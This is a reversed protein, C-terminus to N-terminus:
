ELAKGASSGELIHQLEESAAEAVTTQSASDSFPEYWVSIVREIDTVATSVHFVASGGLTKLFGNVEDELMQISTDNRQQILKLRM